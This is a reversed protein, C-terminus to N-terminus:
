GALATKLTDVVRDIAEESITPSIPPSLVEAAAREARPLAGTSGGYIPLRHLPVPYYMMSAVGGSRLAEKVFDRRAAPIRITYQHYVHTRGPPNVPCQVGPVGRLREEYRQAVEQRAKIAAELRRLKVRLAAAQLSDLRSNYGLMENEYKRRSGHQQLMRVRNPLAM